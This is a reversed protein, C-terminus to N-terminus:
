PAHTTCFEDTQGSQDAVALSSNLLYTQFNTGATVLGIAIFNISWFTLLKSPQKLFGSQGRTGTSQPNVNPYCQADHKDRFLKNAFNLCPWCQVIIFRLFVTVSIFSFHQWM